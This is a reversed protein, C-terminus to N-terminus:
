INISDNYYKNAEQESNCKAITCVLGSKKIRVLWKKIKTDYSVGVEKKYGKNKYDKEM